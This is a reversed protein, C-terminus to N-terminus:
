PKPKVPESNGVPKKDVPGPEPKKPPFRKRMEEYVKVLEALDIAAVASKEEKALCVYARDEGVAPSSTIWWGQDRLAGQESSFGIGVNWQMGDGAIPAVTFRDLLKTHNMYGASPGWVFAADVHGDALAQPFSSQWPM